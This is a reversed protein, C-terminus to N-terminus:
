SFDSLRSDSVVGLNVSTLRAEALERAAQYPTMGTRDATALLHAVTDGIGDVRALAEVPPRGREVAPSYIVGGASAVYDPVWVVGNKHLLDAVSDDALQNNAPGAIAACRLGAVVEATLLGGVAAPVLVDAPARLAQETPLWEAGLRHALPRKTQDIDAVTLKAGAAALTEAVIAGVAGLGIVTVRRGAMEASGFRHACVAEVARCVGRATPPSSDGSGGYAAPLCFVHRTREAITVMDQPSTGVDPGASYRGGLSEIVDGADLLAARRREADLPDSTPAAIVSKAGGHPVGAAACKYTMSEALRLADAVADRWDSYHRLRCGGIPPGLVSSHIAVVIPLASRAGRHVVLQEHAFRTDTDLM